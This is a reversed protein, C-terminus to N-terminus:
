EKDEKNEKDKPAKDKDNVANTGKDPPEKGYAVGEVYYGQPDNFGGYYEEKTILIISSKAAAAQKRIKITASQQADKKSRANPKSKGAVDCHKYLGEIDKKKHTILISEWDFEGVEDIPPKNFIDVRGNRYIIKELEKLELRIISDPKSPLAYSVTLSSIQKVLAPIKRNGLRIITDVPMKKTQGAPVQKTQGFVEGGLIILFSLLLTRMIFTKREV